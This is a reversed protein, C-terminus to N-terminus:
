HRNRTTTTASKTTQAPAGHRHLHPALTSLHRGSPRLPHRSVTETCPPPEAHQAATIAPMRKGNHHSACPKHMHVRPQLPQTRSASPMAQPTFSSPTESSPTGIDGPGTACTFVSMDGRAMAAGHRMGQLYQTHLANLSKITENKVALAIRSQTNAKHRELEHEM